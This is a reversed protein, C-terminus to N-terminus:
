RRAKIIDEDKPAAVSVLPLPVERFGGRRSRIPAQHSTIHNEVLDREERFDFSRSSVCRPFEADARSVM